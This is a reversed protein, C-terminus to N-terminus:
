KQSKNWKKQLCYAEMVQKAGKSLKIEIMKVFPHNAKSLNKLMLIGTM